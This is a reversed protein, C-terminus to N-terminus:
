PLRKAISETLAIKLEGLFRAVHSVDQLVVGLSISRLLIVYSTAHSLSIKSWPSWPMTQAFFSYFYFLILFCVLFFRNERCCCFIFSCTNLYLAYFLTFIKVSNIGTAWIVVKFRFM